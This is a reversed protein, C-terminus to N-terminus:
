KSSDVVKFQINEMVKETGKKMIRKIGDVAKVFGKKKGKFTIVSPDESPWKHEDYGNEEGGEEMTIDILDEDEEVDKMDKPDGTHKKEESQMEKTECYLGSLLINLDKRKPPEVVLWNIVLKSHIIITENPHIM